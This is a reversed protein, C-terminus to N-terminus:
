SPRGTSGSRTTGSTTAACWWARSQTSTALPTARPECVSWVSLTDHRELDPSTLDNYHDLRHAARALVEAYFADPYMAGGGDGAMALKFDLARATSGDDLTVQGLEGIVEGVFVPLVGREGTSLRTLDLFGNLAQGSYGLAGMAGALSAYRVNGYFAYLPTRLVGSQALATPLPKPVLMSVRLALWVLKDADPVNPDIVGAIYLDGDVVARVQAFSSDAAPDVAWRHHDNFPSTPGGPQDLPVAPGYPRVETYVAAASGAPDANRLPNTINGSYQRGTTM